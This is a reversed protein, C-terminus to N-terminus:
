RAVFDARLPGAKSEWVGSEVARDGDFVLYSNRGYHPLKHLISALANTDDTLIVTVVSGAERPNPLACVFTRGRIEYEGGGLSVTGDSLAVDTQSLLGDLADGRGLLWLSAGELDDPVGAAEDLVDGKVGLAHALPLLAMRVRHEERNGIIVTGTEAALAGGITVPFEEPYLKRFLNFDPDIALSLPRSETDVTFTKRGESLRVTREIDGAETRIVVPVYLIFPPDGQTLTFMVAHGRGSHETWASELSIDPLGTRNVWQDFYWSMDEGAARSFAAQLDKWAALRYRHSEYFQRLAAWFKEDGLYQRLMHFVFLSKGYGVSQSASDHREHFESLPFDKEETVYNNFAILTEHRYARAAAAGQQEKYLYDAGYTTLGECWNGTDYDVFVCNGWWNHLIEHGYSTHVIFPLRIVRDGLLTFSPMGYGTQWFNEVMAFKPHPYRGILSEYMSIYRRTADLYVQSLSDSTEYTYTMIRIGDLNEEHRFYRGAILYFEPAPNREVWVDVLRKEGRIQALYERILAGQSVSMYDPPVDVKLTFTFSRDYQFPYWLSENSLYVGREDILGTTTAFGRAYNRDPARLSDYLVGSYSVAIPITEGAAPPDEITLFVGKGRAILERDDEDPNQKIEAPDIEEQSYWKVGNPSEIDKIELSRNILFTMKGDVVNDEGVYLTDVALLSNDPPYISITMSHHVPASAASVALVAIVACVAAPTAKSM